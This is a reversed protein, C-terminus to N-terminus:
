MIWVSVVLVATWRLWGSQHFSSWLGVVWWRLLSLPMALLATGGFEAENDLWITRGGAYLDLINSSSKEDWHAVRQLASPGFLRYSAGYEMIGLRTSLGKSYGQDLLPRFDMGFYNGDLYFGLREYHAEFHGNFAMPFNRMRGAIDIFSPNSSKNFPGASFDGYVGPLWLYATLNFAWPNQVTSATGASYVSSATGIRDCPGLTQFVPFLPNKRDYWTEKIKQARYTVSHTAEPM